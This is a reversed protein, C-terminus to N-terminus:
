KSLDRFSFIQIGKAGPQRRSRHLYTLFDEEVVKGRDISAHRFLKKGNGIVLLGQHSIDLATGLKKVVSPDRRVINILYVPDPLVGLKSPRKIFFDFPIYLTQQTVPPLDTDIGYRKKFWKKRDIKVELQEIDKLGVQLTQDEILGLKQLNPIWESSIFHNRHMLTAPQERYRIRNMTASLLDPSPSLAKAMVTELFTTCDFADERWLTVENLPEKKYPKGLYSQSIQAIQQPSFDALALAASLIALIM